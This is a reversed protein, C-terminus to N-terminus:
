MPIEPGTPRDSAPYYAYAFRRRSEAGPEFRLRANIRLTNGLRGKSKGYRVTILADGEYVNPAVFKWYIPTLDLSQVNAPLVKGARADSVEPANQRDVLSYEAQEVRYWVPFDNQNDLYVGLQFAVRGSREFSDYRYGLTRYGLNYSKDQRPPFVWGWVTLLREGGGFVGDIGALLAVLLGIISLLKTVDREDM